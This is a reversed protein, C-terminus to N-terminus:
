PSPNLTYRCRNGDYDRKKQKPYLSTRGLLIEEMQIRSGEVHPARPSNWWNSRKEKGKLMWRKMELYTWSKGMNILHEHACTNLYSLFCTNKKAIKEKEINLLWKFCANFYILHLVNQISYKLLIFCFEWIFNVMNLPVFCYKEYFELLKLFIKLFLTELPKEETM